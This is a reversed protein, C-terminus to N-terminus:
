DKNNNLIELFRERDEKIIKNERGSFGIEYEDQYFILSYIMENSENYFKINPVFESTPLNSWGKTKESREIIDILQNSYKMDIEKSNYTIKKAERLRKIDRARNLSPNITAIYYLFCAVLIGLTILIIIKIKNM